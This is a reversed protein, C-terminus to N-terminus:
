PTGHSLRVSARLAPVRQLRQADDTFALDAQARPMAVLETQSEIVLIRLRSLIWLLFVVGGGRSSIMQSIWSKQASMRSDPPLHVTASPSCMPESRLLLSSGHASNVYM